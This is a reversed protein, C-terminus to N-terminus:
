LGGGAFGRPIRRVLENVRGRTSLGRPVAPTPRAVRAISMGGGLATPPERLAASDSAEFDSSSLALSGPPNRAERTSAAFWWPDTEAALLCASSAEATTLALARPGADM